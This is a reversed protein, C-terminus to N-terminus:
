LRLNGLELFDNVQARIVVVSADWIRGRGRELGDLERSLPTLCWARVVADRAGIGDCCRPLHQDDIEM